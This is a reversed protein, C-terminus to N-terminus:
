DISYEIKDPRNISFQIIGSFDEKLKDRFDFTESYSKGEETTWSITYVSNAPFSKMNWVSIEDGVKLEDKYKVFLVGGSSRIFPKYIPAKSRNELEVSYDYQYPSMWQYFDVDNDNNFSFVVHGKFDEPLMNRLDFRKQYKKNGDYQWEIAYVANAPYQSQLGIVSVDGPSFLREITYAGDNTNM